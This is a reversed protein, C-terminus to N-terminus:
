PLGVVGDMSGTLGVVGVNPLEGVVGYISGPVPMSGFEDGKGHMYTLM